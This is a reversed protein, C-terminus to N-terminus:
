PKPEQPNTCKERWQRLRQHAEMSAVIGIPGGSLYALMEIANATPAIRLVILNGTGIAFSTWFAAWRHGGNVNLSQLGLAFVLWFTSAFLLLATM